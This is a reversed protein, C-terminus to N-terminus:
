IYESSLKINLQSLGVWVHVEMFLVHTARPKYHMVVCVHMIM